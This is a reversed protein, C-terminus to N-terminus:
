VVAPINFSTQRPSLYYYDLWPYWRMLLPFLVKRVTCLPSEHPHPFRHALSVKANGVLGQCGGAIVDHLCLLRAEERTLAYTLLLPVPSGHVSQSTRSFGGLTTLWQQTRQKPNEFLSKLQSDNVQSFNSKLVQMQIVYCINLYSCMTGNFAGTVMM